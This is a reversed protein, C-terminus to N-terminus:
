LMIHKYHECCVDTDAYLEFGHENLLDCFYIDESVSQKTGAENSIFKFHPVPIEKLVHRKILLCSGGCRFIKQLGTNREAIHTETVKGNDDRKLAVFCNDYTEYGSGDKKYSLIPTMGSVVDKDHSLLRELADFPPITDSDIFLLHTFPIGEKSRSNLFFEAIQNRAHDVPSILYTFYFHVGPRKSWFLLRQTLLAHISAMTPVAILVNQM